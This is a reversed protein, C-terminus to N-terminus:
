LNLHLESEVKEYIMLKIKDFLEQSMILTTGIKVCNIIKGTPIKVECKFEIDCANVTEEVPLAPSVQCVLGDFTLPRNM